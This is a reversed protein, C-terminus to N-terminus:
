YRVTYRNTYRFTYVTSSRGDIMAQHANILLIGYGYIFPVSISQGDALFTLCKSVRGSKIIFYRGGSETHGVSDKNDEYKKAIGRFYVRNSDMVTIPNETFAGTFYTLVKYDKNPALEELQSYKDEEVNLYVSDNIQIKQAIAKGSFAFLFLFIYCKM